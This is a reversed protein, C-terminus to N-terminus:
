DVVEWQTILITKRSLLKNVCTYMLYDHDGMVNRGTKDVLKHGTNKGQYVDVCIMRITQGNTCRITAEDGVQVNKLTRFEQHNHDAIIWCGWEFMAASNKADVVSQANSNHLAVSINASQIYLIGAKQAGYALGTYVLLMLVVLVMCFIKKM